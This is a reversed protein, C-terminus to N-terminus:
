VEIGRQHVIRWRGDERSLAVLDFRHPLERLGERGLYARAARGLRRRKARDCAMLAEALSDRRAKVEVFVITEEDIAVLDIEDRGVRVNREVILFGARRLHRRALAEARRGALFARFRTALM